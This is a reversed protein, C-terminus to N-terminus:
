ITELVNVNIYVIMCGDVLQARTVQQLNDVLKSCTTLLRYCAQQCQRIKNHPQEILDSVTM